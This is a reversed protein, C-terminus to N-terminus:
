NLMRNEVAALWLGGPFGVPLSTPLIGDSQMPENFGVESIICVKLDGLNKALASQFGFDLQREFVSVDDM